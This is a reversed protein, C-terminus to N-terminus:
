KPTLLEWRIYFMRACSGCMFWRVDGTGTSDTLEKVAPAQCWPCPPPTADDEENKTM